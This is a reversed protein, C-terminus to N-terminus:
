QAASAAEKAPQAARKKRAAKKAIAPQKKTAAWRKKQADSIRKRAAASMTRKHPVKATGASSQAPATKAQGEAKKAAWRLRQAAAIRRRAAASLKRAPRSGAAAAAVAQVGAAGLLRRVESIHVDLERQRQELGALATTLISRDLQSPTMTLNGTKLASENYMRHSARREATPHKSERERQERASNKLTGCNPCKLPNSSWARCCPCHSHDLTIGHALSKFAQARDSCPDLRDGFDCVPLRM